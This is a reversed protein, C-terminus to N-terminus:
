PGFGLGICGQCPNTGAAQQANFHAIRRHIEMACALAQGPEEFTGYLDDAFARAQRAGFERFIPLCVTHVNLIRLVSEVDGDAISAHTFGTMDLGLIAVRYQHKELFATESLRGARCALLDRYVGPDWMELSSLDDPDEAVAFPYREPM